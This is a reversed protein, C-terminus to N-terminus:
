LQFSENSICIVRKQKVNFILRYFITNAGFTHCWASLTARRWCSVNNEKKKSKEQAMISNVTISHQIEIQRTDCWCDLMTFYERAEYHKHRPSKQTSTRSFIPQFRVKIFNSTVTQPCWLDGKLREQIDWATTHLKSRRSRRSLLCFLRTKDTEGWNQQSVRVVTKKKKIKHWLLTKVLIGHKDYFICQPMDLLVNTIYLSKSKKFSLFLDAHQQLIHLIKGSKQESAGNEEGIEQWYLYKKYFFFLYIFLLSKALNNLKIFTEVLTFSHGGNM